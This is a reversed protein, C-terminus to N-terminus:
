IQRNAPSESKQVEACFVSRLLAANDHFQALFREKMGPRTASPGVPCFFLPKSVGEYSLEYLKPHSRESKAAVPLVCVRRFQFRVGPVHRCLVEDIYWDDTVTGAAFLGRLNPWLVALIRFLYEIDHKVVLMFRRKDDNSKNIASLSKTARPSLDLHALNLSYSFKCPSLLALGSEWDAFFHHPRVTPSHFYDFCQGPLERDRHWNGARLDDASPNAGLTLYATSFARGFLPMPRRFALTPDYLDALQQDTRATDTEIEEIIKKLEAKAADPDFSTPM